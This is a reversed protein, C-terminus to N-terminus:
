FTAIGMPQWGTNNLGNVDRAALYFIQNATNYFDMILTLTLNNGSSTVASESSPNEWGALCQGNLMAGNVSGVSSGTGLTAGDNGVLYLVNARSDYAVYCANRGDLSDSVLINVVGLDQFGKTDSFTFSFKGRGSSTGITSTPSMGVVATTTAPTAGPVQWVGSPQWGSNNQAVDRAALYVLRNGAFSASFSVRLTLTFTSGSGSPTGVLSATCQSNATNALLGTGADNVLYLVNLPQSYALYCANRGDLASNILVNVVDLDQWGRPDHFTFTITQSSGSGTAPSVGVPTPAEISTPTLLCAGTTSTFAIQGRDNIAAGDTAGILQSSLLGLNYLTGSSYLFPIGIGGPQGLYGVVDGRANMAVPNMTLIGAPLPVGVTNGMTGNPSTPTWLFMTCVELAAGSTCSMGVITGDRNIAALSTRDTGPLGPIPTFTGSNGHAAAPTFLTGGSLGSMIAQGYDNIGVVDAFRSDTNTTGTSGNAESPTWLFGKLTNSSLVVQGSVQGFNNMRLTTPYISTVQVLGSDGLIGVATGTTGNPTDPSWLLPLANPGSNPSGAVQGRDNIAGPGMNFVATTNGGLPSNASFPTWLYALLSSGITGKNVLVQGFNNVGVAWNAAIQSVEYPALPTDLILSFFAEVSEPRSMTMTTSGFYFAVFYGPAPAATVTAQSGAAYWGGGAVSGGAALNSTVTFFYETSFNAAYTVAQAPTTFVRSNAAVGDQWGSFAYRTGEGVLYPSVFTVTCSSGPTWYLTQPANYGGASCGSGTVTFAQVTVNAAITVAVSGAAPASPAAGPTVLYINGAANVVIQGFDNIGVPFVGADTGFQLQSSLSNLDYVTGATYLFPTAIGDSRKMWGAVQGSANLAVPTMSLVNTPLPILTVTGATGNPTTPTWLFAQRNFIGPGPNFIGLIVGSSNIDLVATAMSQPLGTLATYSGAIGRPATPTFLTSGAIAQGLDNIRVLGQLRNDWDPTGTSANPSSPIWLLGSAGIEGSHNIDTPTGFLGGLFATMSGSTGNPADPSWLFPQAHTGGQLSTTGIVQGVDNIAVAVNPMVVFTPPGGIDTLSGVTANSAVPNWLLASNGINVIVQGFNNIPRRAASVVWPAGTAILTVQYNGPPPGSIAAASLCRAVLLSRAVFRLAFTV